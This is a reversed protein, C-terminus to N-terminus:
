VKVHLLCHQLPGIIFIYCVMLTAFMVLLRFRALFQAGRLTGINGQPPLIAVSCM